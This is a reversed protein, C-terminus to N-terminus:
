LMEDFWLNGGMDANELTRLNYGGTLLRTLEQMAAFVNREANAGSAYIGREMAKKVSEANKEYNKVVQVRDVREFIEHLTNYLGIYHQTYLEVYLPNEACADEYIKELTKEINQLILDAKEYQKQQEKVRKNITRKFWDADRSQLRRISAETIKKPRQLKLDSLDIKTKGQWYRLRELYRKREKNYEIELQKKPQKPQREPQRKTQRKTQRKPKSTPKSVKIDAKKTIVEGSRSTLKDIDAQTINKPMPIKLDKLVKGSKKAWYRLREVYAKRARMWEAKLNGPASGRKVHRPM